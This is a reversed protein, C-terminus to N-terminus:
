MLCTIFNGSLLESWNAPQIQNTQEWAHDGTENTALPINQTQSQYNTEATSQQLNSSARM